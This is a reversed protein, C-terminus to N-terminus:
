TPVKNFTQKDCNEVDMKVAEDTAKEDWGMGELLYVWFRVIYRSSIDTIM